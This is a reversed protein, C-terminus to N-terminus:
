MQVRRGCKRAGVSEKWKEEKIGPATGVVIWSICGYQVFHPRIPLFEALIAIKADEVRGRRAFHSEMWSRPRLIGIKIQGACRKRVDLPLFQRLLPMKVDEACGKRM